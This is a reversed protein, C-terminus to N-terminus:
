QTRQLDPTVALLQDFATAQGILYFYDVTEVYQRNDM